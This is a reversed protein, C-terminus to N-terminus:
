HASTAFHSQAVPSQAMAPRQAEAQARPHAAQAVTATGSALTERAMRRRYEDGRGSKLQASADFRGRGRGDAAIMGADLLGCLAESMKASATSEAARGPGTLAAAVVFIAVPLSRARIM